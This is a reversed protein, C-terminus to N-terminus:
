IREHIGEREAIVEPDKPLISIDLDPVPYLELGGLNESQERVRVEAEEISTESQETLEAKDLWWDPDIDVPNQHIVDEGQYLKLLNLSM